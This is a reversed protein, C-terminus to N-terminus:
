RICRTGGLLQSAPCGRHAREPQNEIIYVNSEPAPLRGGSNDLRNTKRAHLGISTEARKSEQWVGVLWMGAGAVLRRFATSGAAFYTDGFARFGGLQDGLLQAALDDAAPQLWAVLKMRLVHQLGLERDRTRRQALRQAQEFGLRQDGDAAALM